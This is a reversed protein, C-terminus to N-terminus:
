PNKDGTRTLPYAQINIQYVCDAKMGNKMGLLSKRFEAIRRRVEEFDRQSCAITLTSIDRVEKPHRDLSEGGLRITEKQFSHIAASKWKDSTSIFRDTQRYVGQEDRVILNLRELLRIAKKGERVSIAPNLKVALAPYNGTFDYFGILERIASYYWKQYFEYQSVALLGPEITQHNLLKEFYFKIESAAEARGYRVLLNFYEAQCQDFQFFAIVKPLSKFALHMKGQLVKVLFGADLGIRGSFYRYSFYTTERKKESYFDRLFQQYDFYSFLSQM